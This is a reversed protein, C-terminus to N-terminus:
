VLPHRYLLADEGDEYYRPRHGVKDFALSRYLAIASANSARVELTIAALHLVKARVQSARMLRAAVGRRRAASRTVVRLIQLEDYVIWADLFGLNELLNTEDYALILVTQARSIETEFHTQGWPPSFSEADIAALSAIDDLRAARTHIM